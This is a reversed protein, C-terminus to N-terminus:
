KYWKFQLKVYPHALYIREKRRGEVLIESKNGM